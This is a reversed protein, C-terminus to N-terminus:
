VFSQGAVVDHRLVDPAILRRHAAFQILELALDAGTWEFENIDGGAFGVGEFRVGVIEPALRLDIRQDGFDDFVACLLEVM